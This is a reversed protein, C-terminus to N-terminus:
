MPVEKLSGEGSMVITKSESPHKIKLVCSQDGISVVHYSHTLWAM